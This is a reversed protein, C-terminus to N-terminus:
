CEPVKTKVSPLGLGRMTSVFRDFDTSDEIKEFEVVKQPMYKNNVYVKFSDDVIPAVRRVEGLWKECLEKERKIDIEEMKVIDGTKDYYPCRVPVVDFCFIKVRQDAMRIKFCEGIKSGELNSENQTINNMSCKVMVVAVLSATNDFFAIDVKYTGSKGIGTKLPYENKFTWSPNLKIVINALAIHFHDTRKSSRSGYTNTLTVLEGYADAIMDTNTKVRKRRKGTYHIGEDM